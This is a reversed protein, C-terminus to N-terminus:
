MFFMSDFINKVYRAYTNNFVYQLIDCTTNNVFYGLAGSLTSCNGDNLVYCYFDKTLSDNLICRKLLDLSEMCISQSIPRSTTALLLPTLQASSILGLCKKIIRSQVKYLKKFNNDSINMSTCGYKLVPSIALDFVNQSTTPEVVPYSVGAHGKYHTIPSLQQGLEQSVTPVEM